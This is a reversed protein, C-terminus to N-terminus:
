RQQFCYLHSFLQCSAPEAETWEANARTADGLSGGTEPNRTTWNTCTYDIQANGEVNTATWVRASTGPGGGTETVDIPALLTGDTLDTFTMAIQTGTVLRYPGTSPVFRSSVSGTRDSLWAKYTGPLGAATALSQCIGDAGSLGELNGTHLSSSLFVLCPGGEGCALAPPPPPPSASPAVCQGAQCTGTSCVTGDPLTAKCKGKKRKKCPPCPKKRASVNSASHLPVNLVGAVLVSFAGRRTHRNGLAWTIRDFRTTDM